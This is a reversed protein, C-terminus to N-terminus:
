ACGSVICFIARIVPPRAYTFGNPACSRSESAAGGRGVGGSSFEYSGGYGVDLTGGFGSPMRAGVLVYLHAGPRGTEGMPHEFPAGCAACWPPAFFTIGTWCRGCLADPEGITEGCALCRPPLVGDVVARGIRLLRSSAWNALTASAHM